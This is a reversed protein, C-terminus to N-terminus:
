TQEEALQQEGCLRDKHHGVAFDENRYQNYIHRLTLSLLFADSDSYHKYTDPSTLDRFLKTKEQVSFLKFEEYIPVQVESSIKYKNIVEPQHQKEEEQEQKQEEETVISSWNEKNLKQNFRQWGMWNTTMQQVTFQNNLPLKQKKQKTEGTQSFSTGM